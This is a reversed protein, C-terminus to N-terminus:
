GEPVEAQFVEAELRGCGGGEPDVPDPLKLGIESTSCKGGGSTVRNALLPKCCALRMSIHAKFVGTV